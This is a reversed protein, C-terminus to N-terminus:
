IQESLSEGPHYKSHIKKLDNITVRTYIQTTQISAHGLMEQIHRIPAGNKLMHTACAHRLSHTSIRKKIGSLVVCRNVAGWIGNPHMQSGWRNLILYGCDDQSQIFESRIFLIYNKILKSVRQSVPVVREHNGKGTIRAYGADLDLDSLKILCLESRRIATDYLIELIVRNRYGKATRLDPAKMLKKIEATSLIVKPLSRPEKPIKIKKGPDHYLYDRDYLYETFSRVNCLHHIQTQIALPTGKKTISFALEQQFDELIDYTLHELEFVKENELFTILKRLSVKVGRITYFSRGISKLYTVYVPIIETFKM